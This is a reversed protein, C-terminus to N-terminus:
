RVCVGGLDELRPNKLKCTLGAECEVSGPGFWL